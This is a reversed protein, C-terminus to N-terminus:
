TMRRGRRNAPDISPAADRYASMGQGTQAPVVSEVAWVMNAMEDRIFNVREVPQERAGQEGRPYISCAARRM